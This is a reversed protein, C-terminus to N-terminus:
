RPVGDGYGVFGPVTMALASIRAKRSSAWREFAAAEHCTLDWGGGAIPQSRSITELEEHSLPGFGLVDAMASAEARSIYRHLRCAAGMMDIWAAREPDLRLISQYPEFLLVDVIGKLERWFRERDYGEADSGLYILGEGPVHGLHAGIISDPRLERMRRAVAVFVAPTLFDNAEPGPHWYAIRELWGRAAYADVDALMAAAQGPPRVGDEGGQLAVVPILRDAYLEDLCEAFHAHGHSTARYDFDAGANPYRLVPQVWVHTAGIDRMIQRFLRRKTDLWGAYAYSQWPSNQGETVTYAFDGKYARAEAPTPRWTATPATAFFPWAAAITM